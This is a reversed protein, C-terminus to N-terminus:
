RLCQLRNKNNSKVASADTKRGHTQLKQLKGFAGARCRNSLENPALIDRTSKNLQRDEKIQIGM